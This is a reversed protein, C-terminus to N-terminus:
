NSGAFALVKGIPTSRSDDSGGVKGAGGICVPLWRCLLSAGFAATWVHEGTLGVMSPFYHQEHRHVVCIDYLKLAILHRAIKLQHTM